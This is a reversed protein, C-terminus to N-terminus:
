AFQNVLTSRFAAAGAGAAGAAGAVMKDVNVILGSGGPVFASGSNDSVSRNFLGDFLYQIQPKSM